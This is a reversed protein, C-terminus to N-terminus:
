EELNEPSITVKAVGFCIKFDTLDAPEFTSPLRCPTVNNIQVSEGSNITIRFVGPNGPSLLKTESFSNSTVSVQHEPAKPGYAAVLTLEITVQNLSHSMSHFRVELVNPRDPSPEFFWSVEPGWEYFTSISFNYLGVETLQTQKTYFRWDVNGWTIEYKPESVNLNVESIEEVEMLVSAFPGTSSAATKFFPDGLKIDISGRNGFKHNIAGRNFTTQPVLIHTIGKSNLYKNFFDEGLSAADLVESYSREVFDTSVEKRWYSNYELSYFDDWSGVLLVNSNNNKRLENRIQSYSDESFNGKLIGLPDALLVVLLLILVWVLNQRQHIEQNSKM